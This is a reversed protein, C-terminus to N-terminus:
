REGKILEEQRDQEHLIAYSKPVLTVDMVETARLIAEEGLLNTVELWIKNAKLDECIRDFESCAVPIAGNDGRLEINCYGDKKVEAWADDILKGM